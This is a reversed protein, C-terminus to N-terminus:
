IEKMLCSCINDIDELKKKLSFSNSELSYIRNPFSVEKVENNIPIINKKDIIKYDLVECDSSLINQKILEQKIKEINIQIDSTAYPIEATVFTTKDESFQNSYYGMNSGRYTLNDLDFDQVYYMDSIEKVDVEIVIIKYNIFELPPTTSFGLFKQFLTYPLTSIIFKTTIKNGESDHIEFYNKKNIITGVNFNNIKSINASNLFDESNRGFSSSGLDKPYMSIQFKNLGRSELSACIIQDLYSNKKKLENSMKDDGVRLRHFISFKNFESGNILESNMGTFKKQVESLYTGGTKGFRRLFVDKLNEIKKENNEPFKFNNLEEFAKLSLKNDNIEPTAIDNTFKGLNMSGYKVSHSKMGGVSEFFEFQEDNGDFLHCGNDIYFNKWKEGNLIGGLKDENYILSVKQSKLKFAAYVSSAGGGLITIDYDVKSYDM